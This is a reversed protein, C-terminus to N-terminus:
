SSNRANLEEMHKAIKEEFSLVQKIKGDDIQPQIWNHLALIWNKYAQGRSLKSRVMQEWVKVVVPPTIKYKQAFTQIHENTLLSMVKEFEQETHTSKSEKKNNTNEKNSIHGMRARLWEQESDNDVEPEILLEYSSFVHYLIRGNALRERRLLGDLELERLISQVTKKSEKVEEAIRISSFEWGEPKSILYGLLGKAKLSIRNTQLVDNGIGAYKSYIKHTPM